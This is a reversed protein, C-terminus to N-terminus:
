SKRITIPTRDFKTFSFSYDENYTRRQDNLISIAIKEGIILSETYDSRYHVGAMNRGIGINSALKNLEDGVKLTGNYTTLRTGENPTGDLSPDVMVPNRITFREDFFAKLITVCAGAVTAHGATYSPHTPSGEPFVQPLLYADYVNFIRQLVPANLIDIHIQYLPNPTSPPPNSNKMRHILGGFAEPRLRRHVFWKQYWTAKLARTAVETVLSLIHPAGFTGFGEQTSSMIYPNGPNFPAKMGLLILCANLFAEYLADRHVWNALDRMNRIFRPINDYRDQGNRDDGNQVALWDTYTYMYDSNNKGPLVTIQRQDIVLSGYRILGDIENKGISPIDNGRLLFQSVYPGILDGSTAGRFITGPTVRGNADKPGRFDSLSSLENAATSVLPEANPGDFKHFPVDRLLAMWYLEVMEGAAEAERIRPAPRTAIAHSDVGEVDFALGAQPDILKLAGALRIREFDAPDGSNLADLLSRYDASVVEGAESDDIPHHHMGKSYNGIFNRHGQADHYYGEEGNDPHNPFPDPYDRNADDRRIDKGRDQRTMVREEM